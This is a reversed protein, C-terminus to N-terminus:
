RFKSDVYGLHLAMCRYKSDWTFNGGHRLWSYMVEGSMLYYKITKTHCSYNYNRKVDLNFKFFHLFFLLFSVESVVKSFCVNNFPSLVSWELYFSNQLLQTKIVSSYNDIVAEWDKPRSVCVSSNLVLEMPVLRGTCCRERLLNSSENNLVLPM